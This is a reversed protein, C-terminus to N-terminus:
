MILYQGYFPDTAYSSPGTYTTSIPKNNTFDYRGKSYLSDTAYFSYTYTNDGTFGDVSDSSITYKLDYKGKGTGPVDYSPTYMAYISDSVPFSSLSVSDSHVVSAAGTAPTFTLASVLKVHTQNNLGYNAIFAGEKNKYAPNHTNLQNYPMANNASISYGAPVFGLDSGNGSSWNPIITVNVNNGANLQNAIDRGDVLSIMYVPITVSHGVAGAGMGVPGGDINNVIIVAIAGGNQAKLAKAGFECNGRWILAVKGSFLTTSYATASCADTDPTAFKVAKNYMSVAPGGWVGAGTAIGDNPTSFAKDGAISAPTTVLFRIGVYDKYWNGRATGGSFGFALPHSTQATAIGTIGVFAAVVLNRITNFYKM